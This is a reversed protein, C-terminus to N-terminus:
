NSTPTNLPFRAAVNDLRLLMLEMEAIHQHRGYLSIM